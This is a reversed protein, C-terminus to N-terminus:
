SFMGTIIPQLTQWIGHLSGFGSVLEQTSKLLTKIAASRRKEKPQRAEDMILSIMELIGEKQENSAETSKLVAETFAKLTEQFGQMSTEKNLISLSVDINKVSGLISGTNLVGVTSQDIKINNLVLDGLVTTRKLPATAYREFFGRPMGSADEMHSLEFNIGRINQEQMKELREQYLDWCKLCLPHRIEKWSGFLFFSGSCQSCKLESWPSNDYTSMEPEM